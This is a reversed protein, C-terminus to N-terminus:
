LSRIHVLQENEAFVHPSSLAASRMFVVVNTEIRHAEETSDDVSVQPFFKCHTAKVKPQISFGECM